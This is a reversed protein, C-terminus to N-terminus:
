LSLTLLVSINHHSLIHCQYLDDGPFASYVGPYTTGDLIHPRYLLLWVPPFTSRPRSKLATRSVILNQELRTSGNLNDPREKLHAGFGAGELGKCANWAHQITPMKHQSALLFHQIICLITLYYLQHAKLLHEILGQNLTSQQGRTRQM